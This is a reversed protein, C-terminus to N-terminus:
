ARGRPRLAYQRVEFLEKPFNRQKEALVVELGAKDFLDTMYAHSRTLSNDDNDVV